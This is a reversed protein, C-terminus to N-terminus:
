HYLSTIFRGKGEGYLLLDVKGIIHNEPIYGFYRSDVSSYRNDGSVFYYNNEFTYSPIGKM